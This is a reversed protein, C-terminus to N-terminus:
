TARQVGPTVPRTVPKQGAGGRSPTIPKMLLKWEAVARAFTLRLHPSADDVGGPLAKIEAQMEQLRQATAIRRIMQNADAGTPVIYAPQPVELTPLEAESKATVEHHFAVQGPLFLYGTLNRSADRLQVVGFEVHMRIRYSAVPNLPSFEKLPLTKQPQQVISTISRLVDTVSRAKVTQLFRQGMRVSAAENKVVADESGVRAVFFTLGNPLPVAGSQTTAALTEGTGTTHDWSYVDRWVGQAIVPDALLATRLAAPVPGVEMEIGNLKIKM